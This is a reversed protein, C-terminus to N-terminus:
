QSASYSDVGFVEQLGTNVLLTKLNADVFKGRM